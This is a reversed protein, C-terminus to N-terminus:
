RPFNHFFVHQYHVGLPFYFFLFFIIQFILDVVSSSFLLFLFFSCHNPQLSIDLSLFSPFISLNDCTFVSWGGFDLLLRCFGVFASLLRCFDVFMVFASWALWLRHRYIDIKTPTPHQPPRNIFIM